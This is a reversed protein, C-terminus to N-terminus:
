EVFTFIDEAFKRVKKMDTQWDNAADRYGIPLLLVSKLQQAKLGLIKDVQDPIFGEMPISDVKLAAAEALAFGLAIYVQRAAHEFQQAPLLSMLQKCVSDRYGNSFGVELAREKEYHSFYHQIREQTYTEWAAFVLLHSCEGVAPQHFAAEQLRIKLAENSVVFVEFPQLGSSTPALRIAELISQLTPLSVKEKTMRKTAYRWKLADIISM